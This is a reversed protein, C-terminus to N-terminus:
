NCTSSAQIGSPAYEIYKECYCRHEGKSWYKDCMSVMKQTIEGGLQEQKIESAAIAATEAQLIQDQQQKLALDKKKKAEAQQQRQVDAKRKKEREAAVKQKKAKEQNVLKVVWAEASKKAGADSCSYEVSKIKKYKAPPGAWCKRTSKTSPSSIPAAVAIPAAKANLALYMDKFDSIDYNLDLPTRFPKFTIKLRKGQQLSTLTGKNLQMQFSGKAGNISCINKKVTLGQQLFRNHRQQNNLCWKFLSSQKGDISVDKVELQSFSKPSNADVDSTVFLKLVKNDFQLHYYSGSGDDATKTSVVASKDINWSVDKGVNLANNKAFPNDSKMASANFSFFSIIFLSILLRNFM